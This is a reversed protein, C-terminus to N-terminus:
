NKREDARREERQLISTHLISALLEKCLTRCRERVTEPLRTWIGDDEFHLERQQAGAKESNHM